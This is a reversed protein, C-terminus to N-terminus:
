LLRELGGSSVKSTNQQVSLFRSKYRPHRQNEKQNRHSAAACLGARRRDADIRTRGGRKGIGVAIGPEGVL